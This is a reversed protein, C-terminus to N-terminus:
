SLGVETRLREALRAAIQDAPGTLM